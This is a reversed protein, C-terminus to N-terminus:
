WYERICRLVGHQQDSVARLMEEAKKQGQSQYRADANWDKAVNWNVALESDSERDQEFTDAIGARKLLKELDHNWATAADKPPFDYERKQKAICAKLACEVVYGALYYAADCRGAHLLALADALRTDALEQLDKRNM